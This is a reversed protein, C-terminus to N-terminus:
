QEKAHSHSQGIDPLGDREVTRLQSFSRRVTDGSPLLRTNERAQRVM